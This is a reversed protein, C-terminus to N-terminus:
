REPVPSCSRASAAAGRRMWSKSSPPIPLFRAPNPRASLIFGSEHSHPITLRSRSSIADTGCSCPHNLAAIARAERQFRENFMEATIKVAVSRNLRTDTARFVRGMGGQGLPAEIRYPGLVSPPPCCDDPDTTPPPDDLPSPRNSATVMKEVQERVDPDAAALLAACDAPREEIKSFLQEIEQWREPTLPTHEAM